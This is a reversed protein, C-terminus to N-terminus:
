QVPTWERALWNIPQETFGTRQMQSGITYDSQGVLEEFQLYLERINGLTEDDLRQM